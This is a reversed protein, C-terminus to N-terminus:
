ISTRDAADEHKLAYSKCSVDTTKIEKTSLQVQVPSYSSYASLFFALLCALLCFLFCGGAVQKREGSMSAHKARLSFINIIRPLIYINHMYSPGQKTSMINIM